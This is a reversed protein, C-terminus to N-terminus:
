PNPPAPVQFVAVTAARADRSIKEWGAPGSAEAPALGPLHDRLWPWLTDVPIALGHDLGLAETRPTAAVIGVSRGAPDVVPGGGLGRAVGGRHIFGQDAPRQVITGQAVDWGRGAGPVVAGVALVETGVDPVAAALPLPSVALGSCRLLAVGPQELVAVVEAPILKQPENPDAIALAWEKQVIEAPVLVRDAAVVVGAVTRARDRPVYDALMASHERCPRGNWSLLTYMKVGDAPVIGQDRGLWRLLDNCEALAKEPMKGLPTAALRIALAVNDTLAQLTTLRNAASRFHEVAQMPRRTLLECVALNNFAPGSEPEVAVAETFNVRAKAPDNLAAYVLGAAFRARGSLPDLRAAKDLAEKALKGNGLRLLEFAHDVEDAANRSAEAADAAVGWGEGVRAKGATALALLETLRVAAAAKVDQPLSDDALFLQYVLVAEAATRCRSVDAEVRELGTPAANSVPVAPAVDELADAAAAVAGLMLGLATIMSVIIMSVTTISVTILSRFFV